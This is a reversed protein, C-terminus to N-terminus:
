DCVGLFAAHLQVSLQMSPASHAPSPLSVFVHLFRAIFGALASM